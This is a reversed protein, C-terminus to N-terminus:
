QLMEAYSLHDFEKRATYFYGSRSNIRFEAPQLLLIIPELRNYGIMSKYQLGFCPKLSSCGMAEIDLWSPIL